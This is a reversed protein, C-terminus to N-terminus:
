TVFLNKIPWTLIPNSLSYFSKFQGKQLRLNSVFINNYMYYFCSVFMSYPCKLCKGGCGVQRKKRGFSNYYSISQSKQQHCYAPCSYPCDTSTQRRVKHHRNFIQGSVFKSLANSVNREYKQAKIKSCSIKNTFIGLELIRFITAM